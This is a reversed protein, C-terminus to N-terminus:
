RRRGLAPEIRNGDGRHAGMPAASARITSARPRNKPANSRPVVFGIIKAGNRRRGALGGASGSKFWLLGAHAIILGLAISFRRRIHFIRSTVAQFQRQAFIELAPLRLRSAAVL